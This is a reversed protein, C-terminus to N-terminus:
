GSPATMVSPASVGVGAAGRIVRWDLILGEAAVLDEGGSGVRRRCRAAGAGSASVGSVAPIRSGGPSRGRSSLVVPRVVGRLRRASGVGAGGTTVDTGEGATDAAGGEGDAGGRVLDAAGGGEDGAGGADCEWYEWDAADAPDAADGGTDAADAVEGAGGRPEVVANVVGYESVAAVVAVM